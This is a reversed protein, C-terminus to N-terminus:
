LTDIVTGYNPSIHFGRDSHAFETVWKEIWNTCNQLLTPLPVSVHSFSKEFKCIAKRLTPSIVCVSLVLGPVPCCNEM